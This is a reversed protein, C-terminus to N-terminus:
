PCTVDPNWDAWLGAPNEFYIWAHALYWNLVPNIIHLTQDYVTPPATNGAAEWISKPVVWEVAGLKLDGDDGTHYVLAEPRMPDITPDEMLGWHFYHYGMAGGGASAPRAVCGAAAGMYGLRYGDALANEINHYRAHDVKLPELEDPVSVAQERTQQNEVCGAALTCLTAVVVRTTM